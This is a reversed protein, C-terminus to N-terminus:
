EHDNRTKGSGEPLRLRKMALRVMTGLLPLERFLAASDWYDRHEIVRGDPGFDLRTAGQLSVPRGRLSCHFDWSVWATNGRAQHHTVRFRPDETTDFMHRFLAAIAAHGQLDNFPDRFRVQEHYLHRLDDISQPTLNNYWEVLRNLKM